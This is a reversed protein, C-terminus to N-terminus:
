PKVGVVLFTKALAWLWPWRRIAAVGLRYHFSRGMTALSVDAPLVYRCSLDGCQRLLRNLGRYTPAFSADTYDSGLGSVRLYLNALRLPLWSLFPLQYHVEVPWLKNPVLLFLVGGRRLGQVVRRLAAPQEAV